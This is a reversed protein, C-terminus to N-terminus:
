ELFSYLMDIQCINLETLGSFYLYICHTHTHKKDLKLNCTSYKHKQLSYLYLLTEKVVVLKRRKSRKLVYQAMTFGM